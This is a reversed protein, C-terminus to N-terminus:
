LVRGTIDLDPYKIEFITDAYGKVTNNTLNVAFRNSNYTNSSMDINRYRGPEMDAYVRGTRLDTGWINYFKMDVVNVVGKIEQLIAQINAMYISQGLQWNSISFYDKLRQLCKALTEQKNNNDAIITFDLQLNCIRGDVIDIWDGIVRKDLLWSRINEKLIENPYQWQGNADKYTTVLDGTEDIGLIYIRCKEGIWLSINNNDMLLSNLQTQTIANTSGAPLMALNSGLSAITNLTEDIIRKREYFVNNNGVATLQANLYSYIQDLSYIGPKIEECSVKYPSGFKPPMKAIFGKVDEYTVVRNQSAFVKPLTYRMEEISMADRGGVAPLDNNVTMSNRVNNLKTYDVAVQLPYFEKSAIGTIQGAQVNSESGGGTRYKIFLTSDIAPIEGLTNNNLISNLSIDSNIYSQILSEFVDFNTTSSGFYLTVLDNIDKKIIFRKPIAVWDGQKIQSTQNVSDQLEVFMKDQALYDVQVYNYDLNDFLSDNLLQFQNGPVGIVGSVETVDTDAITVAMFPKINTSDVYLRQIKTVGSRVVCSKTVKFSIIENNSNFNPTIVRNLPDAFNIDELNEFKIGSTSIAQLSKVNPLLDADPKVLGDEIIFPVTITVKLQTTSPTKTYNTFNFDNAARILSGRAQAESIFSENFAKDTNDGIVSGLYAIMELYMMDPSADNLYIFDDPFRTKAFNKLDEVFTTFDRNIYQIAAM